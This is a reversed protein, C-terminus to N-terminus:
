VTLWWGDGFRMKVSKDEGVAEPENLDNQRRRATRAKPSLSVALRSLVKVNRRRVTDFASGGARSGPTMGVVHLDLTLFARDVEM